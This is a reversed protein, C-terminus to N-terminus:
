GGYPDKVPDYSYTEVVDDDGMASYEANTRYKVKRLGQTLSAIDAYALAGQVKHSANAFYEAPREAIFEPYKAKHEKLKKIFRSAKWEADTSNRIQTEWDSMIDKIIAGRLLTSSRYISRCDM